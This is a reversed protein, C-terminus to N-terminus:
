LQKIKRLDAWIEPIDTKDTVSPPREEVVSMDLGAEKLLSALLDRMKLPAGSAVNYVEGPLGREMIKQYYKVAERVDLYDRRSELNGVEIKPIQLKKVKELQESVRGMFLSKSILKVDGSLNFTRAMVLDMGYVRHYFSM